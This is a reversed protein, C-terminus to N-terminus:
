AVLVEPIGMGLSLLTFTVPDAEEEVVALSMAVVVVVEPSTPTMGGGNAEKKAVAKNGSSTLSNPCILVLSYGFSANRVRLVKQLLM